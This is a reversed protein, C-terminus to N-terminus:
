GDDTSRNEAPVNTDPGRTSDDVPRPRVRIITHPDTVLDDTDEAM